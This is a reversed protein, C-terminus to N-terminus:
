IHDAVVDDNTVVAGGEGFAGLNKGPYFSFCAAKGWSGVRQGHYVAGHAQAADEVVTLGHADALRLMPGLDAAQGYLHVPLIARNQAKLDLFPVSVQQRSVYATLQASDLSAGQM